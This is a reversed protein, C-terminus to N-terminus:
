SSNLRTSKRDRDATRPRFGQDRAHVNGPDGRSAVKSRRVSMMRVRGTRACKARLALCQVWIVRAFERLLRRVFIEGVAFINRAGNSLFTTGPQLKAVVRWLGAASRSVQHGEDSLGRVM